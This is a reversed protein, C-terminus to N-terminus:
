IVKNVSIIFIFYWYNIFIIIIWKRIFFTDLDTLLMPSELGGTTKDSKEIFFINRWCRKKQQIYISM